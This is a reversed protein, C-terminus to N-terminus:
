PTGPTGEGEACALNSAEDPGAPDLRVAAAPCLPAIGGQGLSAAVAGDPALLLVEPPRDNALGGLLAAGGCALLAVGAPLAYRGDYAGGVVLAVAGPAVVADPPLACSAIAGTATRKALRHGYLDLPGEGLNALEVYEGGAEPTAADARIETLTPWPPPGAAAGTEFTAVSPRRRGEADLVPRGEADRVRSSLVLAYAARARLPAAPRLVARTGGGEVAVSATVAETPAPAGDESEVADLAARLADAPVLLLRRGDRLGEASVPASFTIAAAPLEPAVVGGAPEVGIVRTHPPAVPPECGAGLVLAALAVAARRRSM